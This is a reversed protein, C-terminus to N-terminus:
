YSYSNLWFEFDYIFDIMHAYNNIVWQSDNDYIYYLRILKYVWENIWM